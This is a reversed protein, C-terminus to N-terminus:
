RGEGTKFVPGAVLSPQEVARVSLPLSKGRGAFLASRLKSADAPTGLDNTCDGRRSRRKPATTKAGNGTSIDQNDQSRERLLYAM